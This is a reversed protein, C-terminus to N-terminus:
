PLLPDTHCFSLNEDHFQSRTRRKDFPYGVNNGVGEIIKQAWEPRPNPVPTPDEKDEIKVDYDLEM